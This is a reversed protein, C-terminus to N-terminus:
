TSSFLMRILIELKQLVEEEDPQKCFVKRFTIQNRKTINNTKRNDTGILSTLEKYPMCVGKFKSIGVDYKNYKANTNGYIDIGLHDHPRNVTGTEPFKKLIAIGFIEQRDLDQCIVYTGEDKHVHEKHGFCQKDSKMFDDRTQSTFVAQAIKM